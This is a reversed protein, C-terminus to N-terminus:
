FSLDYFGIDHPTHVFPISVALKAGGFSVMSTALLLHRSLFCSIMKTVFPLKFCLLRCCRLIINMSSKSIGTITLYKGNEWWISAPICNM